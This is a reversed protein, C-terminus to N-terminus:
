GPCSAPLVWSDYRHDDTIIFVVNRPKVGQIKELRLNKGKSKNDKQANVSVLLLQSIFITLGYNIYKRM